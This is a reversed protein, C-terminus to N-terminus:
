RTEEYAPYAGNIYVTSISTTVSIQNPLQYTITANSVGVGRDFTVNVSELTLLPLQNIFVSAIDRKVKDEVATQTDFFSDAITTGYSPRMVREGAITGVASKVRAAWIEEQNTTFVVNGRNDISFPFAIASEVTFTTNAM